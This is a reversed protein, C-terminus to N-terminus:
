ELEIKLNLRHFGHPLFSSAILALGFLLYGPFLSIQGLVEPCVGLFLLCKARFGLVRPLLHGVSHGSSQSTAFSLTTPLQLQASKPTPETQQSGGLGQLQSTGPSSRLRSWNKWHGPSM